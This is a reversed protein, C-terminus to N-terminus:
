CSTGGTLKTKPPPGMTSAMVPSLSWILRNGTLGAPDRSGMVEVQDCQSGGAWGTPWESGATVLASLEPGKRWLRPLPGAGDIGPKGKVLYQTRLHLSEAGMPAPRCTIPTREPLFRWQAPPRFRTLSSARGPVACPPHSSTTRLPQLGPPSKLPPATEPSSLVLAHSHCCQPPPTVAVHWFKMLVPSAEPHWPLM